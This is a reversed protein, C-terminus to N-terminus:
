PRASFRTKLLEERYADVQADSPREAYYEEGGIDDVIWFDGSEEQVYIGFYKTPSINVPSACMAKAM